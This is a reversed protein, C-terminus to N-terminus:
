KGGAFSHFDVVFEDIWFKKLLFILNRDFYIIKLSRSINSLGKLVRQSRIKVSSSWWKIWVWLTLSMPSGIISMEVGDWCSVNFESEWNGSFESMNDIIIM